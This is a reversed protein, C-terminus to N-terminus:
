KDKGRYHGILESFGAFKKKLIFLTTGFKM